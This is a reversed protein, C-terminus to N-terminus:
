LHKETDVDSGKGQGTCNPCVFGEYQYTDLNIQM